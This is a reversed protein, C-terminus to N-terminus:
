KGAFFPTRNTSMFGSNVEIFEYLEYGRIFRALLTQPCTGSVSRCGPQSTYWTLEAILVYCIVQDIVSVRSKRTM